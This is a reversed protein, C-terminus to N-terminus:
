AQIDAIQQSTLKREGAFEGHSDAHWPPMYRSGTVQAIQHARKRADEYKLLPFSGIDGAHHCSACNQFLIPAIDRTFTISRASPAGAHAQPEPMAASRVPVSAMRIAAVSVVLTGIAYAARHKVTSQGQERIRLTVVRNWM